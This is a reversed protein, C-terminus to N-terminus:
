LPTEDAFQQNEQSGQVVLLPLFAWSRPLSNSSALKSSYKENTFSGLADSRMRM